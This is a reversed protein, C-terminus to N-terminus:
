PQFLFVQPYWAKKAYKENIFQLDKLYPKEGKPYTGYSHEPAYKKSRTRQLKAVCASIICMLVLSIMILSFIVAGSLSFILYKNKAYRAFRFSQIRRGYNSNKFRQKDSFNIAQGCPKIINQFAALESSQQCLFRHEPM